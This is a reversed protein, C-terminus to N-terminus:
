PKSTMNRKQWTANDVFRIDPDCNCRGGRFVGCWEDHRIDTHWLGPGHPGKGEAHLKRLKRLYNHETM